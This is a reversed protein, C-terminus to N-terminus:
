EGGIWKKTLMVGVMADKAYADAGSYEKVRESMQAGGIMIKVADRLKAEEIAKVTDRMSDYAITLLGSMGVVRPEFAKIEEVFQGPSMDIGIDRVEYGNVDLLFSVINKGIDHIDGKVTGILVRGKKERHPGSGPMMPKALDSIQRLLDGAMMLEPLFYEGTEFRSGVVEMAQTCHELIVFPDGAKSRLLEKAIDIAEKERMNVIANVLLEYM